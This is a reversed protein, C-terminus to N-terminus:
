KLDEILLNEMLNEQHVFLYESDGVRNSLEALM